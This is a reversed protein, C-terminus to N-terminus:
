KTTEGDKVIFNYNNDYASGYLKKYYIAYQTKIQM